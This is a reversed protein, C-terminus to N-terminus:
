EDEEKAVAPLCAADSKELKTKLAGRSRPVPKVVDVKKLLDLKTRESTYQQMFRVYRKGANSIAVDIIDLLHRNQLEEASKNKEAKIAENSVDGDVVNAEPSEIAAGGDQKKRVASSRVGPAPPLNLLSAFPVHIVPESRILRQLVQVAKQSEPAALPPRWLPVPPSSSPTTAKPSTGLTGRASRVAFPVDDEDQSASRTKQSTLRLQTQRKQAGGASAAALEKKSTKQGAAKGAGKKAGENTVTDSAENGVQADRSRKKGARKATTEATDPAKEAGRSARRSNGTKKGKVVADDSRRKNGNSHTKGTMPCFMTKLGCKPCPEMVGFMNGAVLVSLPMDDAEIFANPSDEDKEKKGVRRKKMPPSAESNVVGGRANEPSAKSRTSKKAKAGNSSAVSKTTATPTTTIAPSLSNARSRKRETSPSRSGKGRGDSASSDFFAKLKALVTDFTLGFWKRGRSLLVGNADRRETALEGVRSPFDEEAAQLADRWPTSPNDASHVVDPRDSRTVEFIQGGDPGQKVSATYYVDSVHEDAGADGPFLIKTRGVRGKADVTAFVSREITYGVPYPVAGHSHQRFFQPDTALSGWSVIRLM